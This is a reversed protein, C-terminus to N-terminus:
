DVVTIKVKVYGKKFNSIKAFAARTLDIIRGRRYPGRDNIRVTVSKGNNVNTVRVHTGFPLTRHAATLASNDLREGSATKRSQFKKGYFSATGTKSFSVKGTKHYPVKKPPPFTKKLPTCGNILMVLAALFGLVCTIRLWEDGTNLPLMSRSCRM